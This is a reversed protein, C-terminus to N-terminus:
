YFKELAKNLLKIYIMILLNIDNNHVRGKKDFLILQAM